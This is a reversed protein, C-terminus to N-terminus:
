TTTGPGGAFADVAEVISQAVAAAPLLQNKQLLAILRDTGFFESTENEAETVGDSYFLLLDGPCLAVHREDIDSEPLVGIPPGTAPLKECVGPSARYWLVETHGASAYDLAATRRDLNAAVITIFRGAHTLDDYLFRNLNSLGPGPSSKRGAGVRLLARATSSMM